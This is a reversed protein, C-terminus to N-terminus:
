RHSERLARRSRSPMSLFFGRIARIFVSLYRLPSMGTGWWAPLRTGWNIGCFAHLRGRRAEGRCTVGYVQLAFASTGKANKYTLEEGEGEERGKKAKKHSDIRNADAIRNRRLRILRSLPANNLVKTGILLAPVPDEVVSETFFAHATTVM